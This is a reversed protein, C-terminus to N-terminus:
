QVNWFYLYQFQLLHNSLMKLNQHHISSLCILSPLSIKLPKMSAAFSVACRSGNGCFSKSGDPNYFIMEFDYTKHEKIIIVGDAGIGYKRDCLFKIQKISLNIDGYFFIFDNGTAQYKYFKM